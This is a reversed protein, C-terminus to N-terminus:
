HIYDKRYSVRQKPTELATIPDWGRKIRGWVYWAPLGYHNAWQSITKKEGNIELFVNNRKNNSQTKADVWRCNDPSYIGDNDIRDLSLNNEYGNSVAWQLFSERGKKGKWEDCVRIGRAGYNIFNPAKQNYCRTIMGNYIHKLRDPFCVQTTM